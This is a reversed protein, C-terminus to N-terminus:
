QFPVEYNVRPLFWVLASQTSSTECLNSVKFCVLLNMLTLVSLRVNNPTPLKGKKNMVYNIFM